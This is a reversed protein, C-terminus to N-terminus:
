STLVKDLVAEIDNGNLTYRDHEDMYRYVEKMVEKAVEKCEDIYVSINEDVSWTEDFGDCVGDSIIEEVEEQNEALIRKRHYIETTVCVEYYKM